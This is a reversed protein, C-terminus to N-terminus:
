KSLVWFFFRRDFFFLGLNCSGCPLSKGSYVRLNVKRSVPLSHMGYNLWGMVPLMCCHKHSSFSVKLGLGVSNWKWCETVREGNTTQVRHTTQQLLSINCATPASPDNSLHRGFMRSIRRRNDTIARQLLLHWPVAAPTQNNLLTSSSWKHLASLRCNCSM